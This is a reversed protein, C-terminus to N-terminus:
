TATFNVLEGAGNIASLTISGVLTATHSTGLFVCIGGHYTTTFEPFMEVTLSHVGFEEVTKYRAGLKFTQPGVTITCNPHTIVLSNGKPCVLDITQLTEFTTGKAVTLTFTCQNFHFAVTGPEAGTTHCKSYFPTLTLDNKTGNVIVGGGYKAEDCIISGELGHFKWELFHVPNEVGAPAAEVAGQVVFHGESNAAPSASAFTGVAVAVLSGLGLAKLKRRM